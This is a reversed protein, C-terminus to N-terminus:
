EHGGTLQKRQINRARGKATAPRAHMMRDQHKRGKVGMTQLM